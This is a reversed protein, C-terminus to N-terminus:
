KIILKFKKSDSDNFDCVDDCDSGEDNTISDTCNQAITMKVEFSFLGKELPIGEIILKRGTVNYNLGDPLKNTIEFDYIFDNDNTNNKVEGNIVQIYQNGITGNAINNTKINPITSFLCDELIESCSILSFFTSIILQKKFLM